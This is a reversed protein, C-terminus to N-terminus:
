QLVNEGQFIKSTLASFENNTEAFFVGAIM